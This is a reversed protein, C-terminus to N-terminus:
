ALSTMSSYKLHLFYIFKPENFFFFFSLFIRYSNRFNYRHNNLAKITPSSTPGKREKKNSIKKMKIEFAIGLTGQVRRGGHDMFYGSRNGTGPMGKYQPMHDECSQPGRRGNIAQFTMRQQMNLQLCLNQPTSLIEYEQEEQLTASGKVNKPVNQLEMM